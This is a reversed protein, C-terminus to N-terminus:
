ISLFNHLLLKGIKQSKEPHFQVGFINEKHIIANFKVGYETTAIINDTNKVEFAYSHLFYFDSHAKFGKVLDHQKKIQINNWGIHPLLLGDAQLKTVTGPIWGLGMHEGHEIGKEALVQLGVCIGLFPKKDRLVAQELIDLPINRKIKKMSAGFSGVGPLILHTSTNIDEEKNSILVNDTITLLQNLVSQVNGSGYDLICVQM